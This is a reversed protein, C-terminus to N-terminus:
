HDESSIARKLELLTQSRALREQANKRDERWTQKQLQQDFLRRAEILGGNRPSLDFAVETVGSPHAMLWLGNHVSRFRELSYIKFDSDILVPPQDNLVLYNTHMTKFDAPGSCLLASSNAFLIV